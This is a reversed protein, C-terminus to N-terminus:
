VSLQQSLQKLVEREEEVISTSRVIGVFKKFNLM